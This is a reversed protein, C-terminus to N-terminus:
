IPITFLSNALGVVVPLVSRWGADIWDKLARWEAEGMRAIAEWSPPPPRAGVSDAVWAETDRERNVPGSEPTPCDLRDSGSRASGDSQIHFPFQTSDSQHPQEQQFRRKDPGQLQAVAYALDTGGFHSGSSGTSSGRNILNRGGLVSSSRGLKSRRNGRQLSQQQGM